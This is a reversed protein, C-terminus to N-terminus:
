IVALLVATKLNRCLCFYFLSFIDPLFLLLFSLVIIHYLFCSLSSISLSCISLYLFSFHSGAFSVVILFLELFCALFYSLFFAFLFFYLFSCEEEDAGNAVVDAKTTKYVDYLDRLADTYARTECM